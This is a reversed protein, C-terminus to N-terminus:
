EIMIYLEQNFRKRIMSQAAFTGVLLVPLLALARISVNSLRLCDTRIGWVGIIAFVCRVARALLFILLSVQCPSLRHAALLRLTLSTSYM